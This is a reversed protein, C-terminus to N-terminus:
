LAILLTKKDKPINYGKEAYVVNIHIRCFHLNWLTYHIHTIRVIAQFKNPSLQLRRKETRHSRNGCKKIKFPTNTDFFVQGIQPLANSSEM